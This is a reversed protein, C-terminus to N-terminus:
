SEITEWEHKDDHHAATFNYCEYCISKELVLYGRQLKVVSPMVIIERFMQSRGKSAVRFLLILFVTAKEYMLFDTIKMDM